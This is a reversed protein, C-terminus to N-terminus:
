RNQAKVTTAKLMKKSFDEEKYHILVNAGLSRCLVFKEQSGATVIVSAGRM